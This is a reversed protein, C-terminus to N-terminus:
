PLYSDLNLKNILKQAELLEKKLTEEGGTDLPQASIFLPKETGIFEFITKLHPELHDRPHWPAKPRYDGGRTSVVIVKKGAALGIVENGSYKFLHRPQLIVDFFHKLKYPMGFNWMPVSILILGAAMFRNICKEVEKWQPVLEDKVTKGGMLLYKGEVTTGHLEPMSEQYLDLTDVVLQPAEKLIKEILTTSLSLTRSSVGRPTAIIHLIRNM